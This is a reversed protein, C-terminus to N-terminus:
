RRRRQKAEVRSAVAPSLRRVVAALFSPLVATKCDRRLSFILLAFLLGLALASSLPPAAACGGVTSPETPEPACTADRADRVDPADPGTAHLSPPCLRSSEWGSACLAVRASEVFSAQEAQESTAAAVRRAVACGREEEYEYDVGGRALIGVLRGAEDFVGSGSSAEFTDSDLTFYDQCSPRSLVTAGSDLKAPLGSPYGVVTLARGVAPVDPALEAARRPASVPRDLEIWAYDWRRGQADTDYRRLPISRCRYVDEEELTITGSADLVAYGFVLARDDCRASADVCHGATLILRDDVLVGSCTAAAPQHTFAEGPCLHNLEGLSGARVELRSASIRVLRELPLFAVTRQLALAALEARPADIVDRRDDDGYILGRSAEDLSPPAACASAISALLWAASSLGRLRRSSVRRASGQM